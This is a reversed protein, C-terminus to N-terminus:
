SGAKPIVIFRVRVCPVDGGPVALHTEAIYRGPVPLDTTQFAHQWQLSSVIGESPPTATVITSAWTAPTVVGVGDMWVLITVSTVTTMDTISPADDDVSVTQLFANPPGIGAPVVVTRIPGM